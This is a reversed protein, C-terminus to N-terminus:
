PSLRLPPPHGRTSLFCFPVPPAGRRLPRTLGPPSAWGMTHGGYPQIGYTIGALIGVLGLAFTINGLWDIRARTRVGIERLSLYSWITGGIGIPVSVLFVLRWDVAALVGGLILGIFSGSIGAVQNIGMATGRQDPPFADTLIAPSNAMLM